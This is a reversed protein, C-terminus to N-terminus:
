NVYKAVAAEYEAVSPPKATHEAKTAKFGEYAARFQWPEWRDVQDPASGM